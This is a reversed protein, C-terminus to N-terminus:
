RPKDYSSTSSHSSQNWDKDSANHDILLFSHSYPADVVAPALGSNRKKLQLVPQANDDLSSPLEIDIDPPSYDCHEILYCEIQEIMIENQNMLADAQELIDSFSLSNLVRSHGSKVKKSTEGVGETLERM